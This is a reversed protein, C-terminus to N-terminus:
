FIGIEYVVYVWYINDSDNNDIIIISIMKIIFFFEFYGSELECLEEWNRKRNNNKNIILIM